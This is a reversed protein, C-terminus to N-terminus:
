FLHETILRAGQVPKNVIIKKVEGIKELKKKLSEEDKAQVILHIDQGTNITFYVALGERRWEQVLKMIKLTGTTWYLLTPRSTLMVAHMNLADEEILEGFTPFDKKRLAKKLHKNKEKMGNLRTQYFPSSAAFEQGRTSSVKKAESSVIVVVDWIDWYSAPHLSVAYSTENTKGDLWEVFGDPISRCASGSGVRALISLQKETPHLGAASSAALTLAASGSASSSLGTGTPFNNITLVKAKTRIKALARVRNLHEIVKATEHKKNEGNIRVEDNRLKANFEVTTTTYLDSLNMSISGNAPLKLKDDKKGWYKTFAINSPAIATAKM